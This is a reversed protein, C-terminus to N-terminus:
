SRVTLLDPGAARVIAIKTKTDKAGIRVHGFVSSYRCDDNGQRRWPYGDPGQALDVSFRVEVFHEEVINTHWNVTQETVQVITPSDGPGHHHVLPKGDGGHERHAVHHGREECESTAGLPFTRRGGLVGHNALTQRPRVCM